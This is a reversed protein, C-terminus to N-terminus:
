APLGSAASYNPKSLESREAPRYVRSGPGKQDRPLFRPRVLLPLAQRRNNQCEGGLAELVSPSLSRRRWPYTGARSQFTVGCGRPFSQLSERFHNLNNFIYESLINKCNTVPRTEAGAEPPKPLAQGCPCWCSPASGDRDNNRRAIFSCKNAARNTRKSCLLEIPVHADNHRVILNRIARRVSWPQHSPFSLQLHHCRGNTRLRLAPNRRISQRRYRIHM